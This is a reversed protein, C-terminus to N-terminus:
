SPSFEERVGSREGKSLSTRPWLAGVSSVSVNRRRACLEGYAASISLSAISIGCGRCLRMEPTSRRSAM